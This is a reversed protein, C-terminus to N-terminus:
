KEIRQIFVENNTQLRGSCIIKDMWDDTSREYSVALAWLAKREGSCKYLLAYNHLPIYAVKM